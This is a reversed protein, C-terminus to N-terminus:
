AGPPGAPSRVPLTPLAPLGLRGSLGGLRAQRPVRSGQATRDVTTDPPHAPEARRGWWRPLAHHAM